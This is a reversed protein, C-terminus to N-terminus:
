QGSGMATNVMAGAQYMSIRKRYLPKDDYIVRVNCIEPIRYYFRNFVDAEPTQPLLNKYSKSHGSPEIILEIAGGGESVIGKDDTFRDLIFREKEKSGEPIIFYERSLGESFSKGIFLSLYEEELKDLERIATELEFNDPLPDVLGAALYYRDSRIELILKAAEEAKKELTKKEMQQSTVPVRVFSTDTILTKYITHERFEVNPEMTVDKFHISGTGSTAPPIKIDTSTSFNGLLILQHSAARELPEMDLKCGICSAAYLVKGPETSEDIEIGNLVYSESRKKKVGDIGLLRQAYDAYPGPIFIEKRFDLKIKLSTVPLAYIVSETVEAPEYGLETVVLQGPTTCGVMLLLFLSTFLYSIRM